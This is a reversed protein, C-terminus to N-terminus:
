YKRSVKRVAMVVLLGWLSDWTKLEYPKAQHRRIFSRYVSQVVDEASLKQRLRSSMRSRALAILRASYRDVVARGACNDCDQLAAMLMAFPLHDELPRVGSGESM